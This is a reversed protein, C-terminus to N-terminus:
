RFQTQFNLCSQRLLRECNSVHAKSCNPKEIVSVTVEWLISREEQVVM